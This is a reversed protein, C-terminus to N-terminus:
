IRVLRAEKVQRQAPRESSVQAWWVGFLVTLIIAIAMIGAGLFASEQETLRNPLWNM